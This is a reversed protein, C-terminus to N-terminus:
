PASSQEPCCAHLDSQGQVVHLDTSPHTKQARVPFHMPAFMFSTRLTKVNEMAANHKAIKRVTTLGFATLATGPSRGSKGSSARALAGDCHPLRAHQRVKASLGTLKALKCCELLHSRSMDSKGPM